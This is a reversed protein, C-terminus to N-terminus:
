KGVCFSAFLVDLVDDVRVSGILEGLADAAARVHIAAISPPLADERWAAEFASLEARAAAVAFQQRASTLAPADLTPVGHRSALRAEILVLLERLGDGTLASVAIDAADAV